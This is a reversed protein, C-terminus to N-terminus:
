NFSRCALRTHLALLIIVPLVRPPVSAASVVSAAQQTTDHKQLAPLVENTVVTIGSQWAGQVSGFNEVTHEGAFFVVSDLNSIMELWESELFGFPWTSFSGYAYPNHTWNTVAITHPSPLSEGFFDELEAMLGEQLEGVPLSEIIRATEGAFHFELSKSGPYMSPHDRNVMLRLPSTTNGTFLTVETPDWFTSDFVALVKAYNGMVMKNIASTRAVSLPPEFEVVERQLVGLPLTCIAAKAHIVLGQQTRVTVGTNDYSITTVTQGTRVSGTPLHRGVELLVNQYSGVVQIDWGTYEGARPLSWMVGLRSPDLTYDFDVAYWRLAAAVEEDEESANAPLFGSDEWCTDLTIDISEAYETINEAQTWLEDNQEQCYAQALEMRDYWEGLSVSDLTTGNYGRLTMNSWDMASLAVNSSNAAIALELIPNVEPPDTTTETGYIWQAGVNWYETETLALSQVRGGLVAQAEVLLFEVDQQALTRAAALGAAGGGIIVVSTELVEEALSSRLLSLALCLTVLMGM